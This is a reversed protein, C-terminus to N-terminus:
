KASRRRMSRPRSPMSAKTSVRSASFHDLRKPLPEALDKEKCACRCAHLTSVLSDANLRAYKMSAIGPFAQPSHVKHQLTRSITSNALGAPVSQLSHTLDTEPPQPM